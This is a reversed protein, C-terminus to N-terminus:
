EFDGVRGYDEVTRRIGETLSIRSRWGMSSLRDINLLKRPTGDPKSRDWEVAGQFGVSDAVLAALERVSLDVGCGINLVHRGDPFLSSRSFVEDMREMLFVCADALDDAHLFERRPEGSGWLRVLPPSKRLGELVDGPILGHRAEDLRIAEWDGRHALHALHFKRILSPLVHSHELDYHDNPGYLNTPMVSLFRTGYQRNFAECLEIGAIKAIAYPQNTPELPGTLLSEEMIPQPANRPYICSSGLFLLGNVGFQWAAEMVNNQIKLNELLFDVPFRSNAYIGGVRAAALFVWEPREDAFFRQVDHASCLDLERHTRGLVNVYGGGKLRRLIASGALGRHGAVYIRSHKDM